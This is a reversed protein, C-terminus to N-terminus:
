TDIGAKRALPLLSDPMHLGEVQRALQRLMESGVGRGRTAPHVVLRRLMWHDADREILALAVPSGNFIGEFVRWASDDGISALLARTDAEDRLVRAFHSDRGEANSNEEVLLPM